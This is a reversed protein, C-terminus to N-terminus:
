LLKHSYVMIRRKESIDNPGKVKSGVEYLLSSFLFVRFALGPDSVLEGRTDLTLFIDPDREIDGTRVLTLESSSYM